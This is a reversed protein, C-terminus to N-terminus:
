VNQDSMKAQTENPKQNQDQTKIYFDKFNKLALFNKPGFIQSLSRLFIKKFKKSVFIKQTEFIKLM